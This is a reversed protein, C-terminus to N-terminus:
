EVFEFEFDLIAVLDGDVAGADRLMQDIGMKTIQQAFHRLGAESKTDTRQMLREARYGSIRYYGAKEKTITISERESDFRYIVRDDSKASQQPLLQQLQKVLAALLPKLGEELVASIPYIELDPHKEKFQQLNATAKEDDMKNAVVIQPRSLLAVDYNALEKNIVEYDASPDANSMDLVHIILRCREIHKLFQIGLGKGKHADEILGPLDAMVFSYDGFAVLGLNPQLTTFPYDAVEPRANSVVSLLTSKGVSPLGVLGCDALIKLEVIVEKTIGPDGNEAYEPASNRSTAFHFNGRGGKGGELIVTKQGVHKLDAILEGSSAEKVVTGLPVKIILDSGDAGAMKKAKGNEGDQAKLLRNFRLDLLTNKNTDVEFIIAGGKGGDGGAPGGLPVYKERRFAVIGNGGKGSIM